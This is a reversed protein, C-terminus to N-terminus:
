EQPFPVQSIVEVEARVLTIFRSCVKIKKKKKKVVEAEGLIEKKQEKVKELEPNSSEM